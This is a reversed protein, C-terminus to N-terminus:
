ESFLPQNKLRHVGTYITAKGPRTFASLTFNHRQAIKVARETTASIACLMEIGVALCKQVMEFSARSTVFVFGLPMDAQAYWGILKDLAIHRGVDERIALLQGNPTFFAAAHSAGTIKALSQAQELQSLCCELIHAEVAQLRNNQCTINLQQNVQALQEVGCIGCGTRGAMSRRKAKLEVFRRTAIEMQVEVGDCQPIIELGYLESKHQLIGEALSFGLAFDALSQPTAMMVTHSIGNYVLAVPVECIIPEEISHATIQKRQFDLKTANTTHTIQM